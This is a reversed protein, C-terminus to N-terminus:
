RGTEADAMKEDEDEEGGASEPEVWEEDKLNEDELWGLILSQVVFEDSVVRTKRGEESMGVDRKVGGVKEGDDVYVIDWGARPAQGRAAEDEAAGDEAEAILRRVETATAVRRVQRAGLARTLWLYHERKLNNDAGAKGRGGKSLLFLVGMGGLMKKRDRFTNEFRATIASYPQIFRTVVMGHMKRPEGAQLMYPGTWQLISKTAICGRIWFSSLCPLGLALAQLFKSKRSYTDGIFAVFGLTKAHETLRLDGDNDNENKNDDQPAPNPQASGRRSGPAFSTNTSNARSVAPTALGDIDTKEFLDKFDEIVEGGHAVILATVEERDEVAAEDSRKYSIAFAMGRFLQSKTERDAIDDGTESSPTRSFRTREAITSPGPGGDDSGNTSPGTPRRLNYRKNIPRPTSKSEAYSPRSAKRGQRRTPTTRPTARPTEEVVITEDEEDDDNDAAAPSPAASTSAGNRPRSLTDEPTTKRAKKGKGGASGEAGRKRKGKGPRFVPPVYERERAPAEFDLRRTVTQPPPMLLADTMETGSRSRDTSEQRSTAATAQATLFEQLEEAVDSAIESLPSSEVSRRATSSLATAYESIQQQPAVPTGHMLGGTAIPPLYPADASDLRTFASASRSDRDSSTRPSSEKGPSATSPIDLSAHRKQSTARLAEDQILGDKSHDKTCTHGNIFRHCQKEVGEISPRVPSVSEDGDEESDDLPLLTTSKGLSNPKSVKKASRTGAMETDSSDHIKADQRRKTVPRAIPVDDEDSEEMPQLPEDDSTPTTPASVQKQLDSPQRRTSRRHPPRIPSSNPSKGEAPPLAKVPLSRPIIKKGKGRGRDTNLQQLTALVDVNPDENEEAHPPFSMRAVPMGLPQMVQKDKVESVKTAMPIPPSNSGQSDEDLIFAGAKRVKKAAEFDAVTRFVKPSLNQPRFPNGDDDMCGTDYGDNYNFATRLPAPETKKTARNRTKKPSVADEATPVQTCFLQSQEPVPPSAIKTKAKRGKKPTVFEEVKEDDIAFRASKQAAKRKATKEKAPTLVEEADEDSAVVREACKLTPKPKPLETVKKGSKKVRELTVVGMADEDDVVMDASKAAAEAKKAAATKRLARKAKEPKKVPAVKTPTEVELHKQENDSPESPEETFIVRSGRAMKQEPRKKVPSKKGYVKKTNKVFNSPTIDSPDLQNPPEQTMPFDEFSKMPSDIVQSLDEFPKEPSATKSPTKRWPSTEPVVEPATDNSAKSGGPTSSPKSKTLYRGLSTVPVSTSPPSSKAQSSPATDNRGLSPLIGSDTCGLNSKARAAVGPPNYNDEVEELSRHTSAPQTSINAQSDVVVEPQSSRRPQSSCIIKSSCIVQSDAGQTDRANIGERQARYEESQSRNKRSTRRATPAKTAEASAPVEVEEAKKAKDQAFTTGEFSQRQRERLRAGRIDNKVIVRGTSAARRVRDLPPSTNRPGTAMDGVERLNKEMKDKLRKAAIRKRNEEEIDMGDDSEYTVPKQKQKASEASRRRNEETETFRLDGPDTRGVFFHAYQAEIRKQSETEAKWKGLRAKRVREPQTSDDFPQFTSAVTLEVHSPSSAEAPSTQAMRVAPSSALGAMGPSSPRIGESQLFRPDLPSSQTAAFVQSMGMPVASRSKAFPNKSGTAPTEPELQSTDDQRAFDYSPSKLGRDQSVQLNEEAQDQSQTFDLRVAGSENENYTRDVDIDEERRGSSYADKGSSLTHTASSRSKKTVSGGENQSQSEPKAATGYRSGSDNAQTQSATGMSDRSWDDMVRTKLRNINEASAKRKNHKSNSAAALRETIKPQSPIFTPTNQPHSTPQDSLNDADWQAAVQSGGSQEFSHIPAVFSRRHANQSPFHSQIYEIGGGGDFSTSIPFLVVQDSGQTDVGEARQSEASTETLVTRDQASVEVLQSTDDDQSDVISDLAQARIGEIFQTDGAQSLNGEKEPVHEKISEVGSDEREEKYVGTAQQEEVREAQAEPQSDGVLVQTEEELLRQKLADIYETDQSEEIRGYVDQTEKSRNPISPKTFGKNFQTDEFLGNLQTESVLPGAPPLLQSYTTEKTSKGKQSPQQSHQIQAPVDRNTRQAEESWRQSHERAHVNDEIQSDEELFQEKLQDIQQTNLSDGADELCSTENLVKKNTAITTPNANYQSQSNDAVHIQVDGEGLATGLDRM